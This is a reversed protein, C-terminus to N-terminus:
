YVACLLPEVSKILKTIMLSSLFGVSLHVKVM